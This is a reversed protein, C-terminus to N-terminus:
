SETGIVKRIDRGTLVGQTQLVIQKVCRGFGFHYSVVTLIIVVTMAVGSFGAKRHVGM